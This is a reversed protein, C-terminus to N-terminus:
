TYMVLLYRAKLQGSSIVSKILHDLDPEIIQINSENIKSVVDLNIDVGVVSIGNKALLAATPLGIYGLGIVCVKKKKMFEIRDFQVYFM